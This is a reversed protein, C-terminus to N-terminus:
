IKIAFINGQTTGIYLIGDSAAIGGRVVGQVKYEWVVSGNKKDLCYIRGDGAAVIVNASGVFPWRAGFGGKLERKWRVNKLTLDLSYFFQGIQTFISGQDIVLNGYFEGERQFRSKVKGNKKSLRYLVNNSTGFYLDDGVMQASSYIKEGIENKWVLTGKDKNVAYFIENGSGFYLKSGDLLPTSKPLINPSHDKVKFSWNLKGSSKQLSILEGNIAVFFVNKDDLVPESGVGYPLEYKWKVEGSNLDFAYLHGVNGFGGYDCGVYVIQNEVVPSVHFAQQSGDKTIDYTWRVDSTTKDIAYFTGNCAGVLLMDGAIAPKSFM